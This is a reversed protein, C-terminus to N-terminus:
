KRNEERKRRGVHKGYYRKKERKEMKGPKRIKRMKERGNNGEM